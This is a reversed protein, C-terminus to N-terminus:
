MQSTSTFVGVLPIKVSANDDFIWIFQTSNADGKNEPPVIGSGLDANKFNATATLGLESLLQYTVRFIIKQGPELHFPFGYIM